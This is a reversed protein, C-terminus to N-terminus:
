KFQRPPTPRTHSKTVKAKQRAGPPKPVLPRRRNPPQLHLQSSRARSLLPRHAKPLQLPQFKWQAQAAPGPDLHGKELPRLPSWVRTPKRAPKIHRPMAPLRSAFDMRTSLQTLTSRSRPATKSGPLPRTPLTLPPRVRALPKRHDPHVRSQISSPSPLVSSLFSSHLPRVTCATYVFRLPNQLWSVLSKEQEARRDEHVRCVLARSAEEAQPFRKKEEKEGVSPALALPWLYVSAEPVNQFM